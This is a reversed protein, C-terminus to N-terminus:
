AHQADEQPELTEADADADTKETDAVTGAAEADSSAEPDEEAADTEAPKIEDAEKEDKKGGGLWGAVEEQLADIEALKLLPDRVIFAEATSAHEYILMRSEAGDKADVQKLIKKRELMIALIYRANESAAEDEDILRRLLAEASEKEVVERKANPDIPIEYKSSWYSYPPAWDEQAKLGEWAERCFDKREFGEGEEAPFLAGFVTEGDVFPQETEHCARSRSRINWSDNLAM